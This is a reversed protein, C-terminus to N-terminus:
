QPLGGTNASATPKITTQSTVPGNNLNLSVHYSIMLVPVVIMVKRM